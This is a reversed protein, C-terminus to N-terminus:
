SRQRVIEVAARPSGRWAPGHGPLILEAPLTTLVELQELAQQPDHAFFEPLMQPGHLRSLPHGTVLADGTVLVGPERLLYAAHGRTHGAVLVPEPAGPLDLMGTTPLATAGTLHVPTTGGSRLVMALWSPMHPLTLNRLVDLPGAQDHVEGHLHPIEAPHAHVPVARHRLLGPLAGVHDIHGHTLLVARLGAIGGALSRVDGAVQAADAPYGADILTLERGDRLLVWNSGRGRSFFVGDAVEQLADIRRSSRRTLM